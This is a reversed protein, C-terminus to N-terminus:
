KLFNTAYSLTKHTLLKIDDIEKENFHKVVLDEDDFIFYLINNGKKIENEFEATKIYTLMIPNTFQSLDFDKKENFKLIMLISKKNPEETYLVNEIIKESNLLIKPIIRPVYYIASPENITFTKIFILNSLKAQRYINKFLKLRCIVKYVFETYLDIEIVQKSLVGCITGFININLYHIIIQKIDEILHDNLIINLKNFFETNDVVFYKYKNNYNILEKITNNTVIKLEKKKIKCSHIFKEIDDCM